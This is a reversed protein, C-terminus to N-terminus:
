AAARRLQRRSPGRSFARRPASLRLPHVHVIVPRVPQPERNLAATIQPAHGILMKAIVGLSVMLAGMFLFAALFQVM